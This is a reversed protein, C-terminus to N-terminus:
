SWLYIYENLKKFKWKWKWNIIISIYAKRPPTYGLRGHGAAFNDVLVLDGAEAM